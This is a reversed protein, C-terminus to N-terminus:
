DDPHDSVVAGTAADIQVEWVQTGDNPKVEWRLGDGEDELHAEVVTGAHRGLAADRAQQETVAATATHQGTFAAEAQSEPEPDARGGGNAALAVGAGAGFLTAAVVGGAIWKSRRQM